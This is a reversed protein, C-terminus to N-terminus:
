FDIAQTTGKFEIETMTSGSTLVMDHDSKAPLTKWTCPVDAVVKGKSSFKAQNGNVVLDYEGAQLTKGAVTATAGLRVTKHLSDTAATVWLPLAMGTAVLATFLRSRVFASM